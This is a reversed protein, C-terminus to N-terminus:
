VTRDHSNSLNAPSTQSKTPVTKSLKRRRAASVVAWFVDEGWDAMATNVAVCVMRINDTTYGRSSDIRDLSPRWPQRYGVHDTEMKFPLGTVECRLKSRQLVAAVDDYAITFEIGRENARHLAKRFIVRVHKEFRGATNPETRLAEDILAAAEGIPDDSTLRTRRMGRARMEPTPRFYCYARGKARFTQIYSKPNVTSM